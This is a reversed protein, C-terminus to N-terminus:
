ACALGTNRKYQAAPNGLPNGLLSLEKVVPLSLYLFVKFTVYFASPPDRAREARTGRLPMLFDPPAAARCTKRGLKEPAHRIGQRRIAVFSAALPSIGRRPSTLYSQIIM